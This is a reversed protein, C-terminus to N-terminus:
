NRRLNVNVITHGLLERYLRDIQSELQRITRSVESVSRFVTSQSGEGSDFKYNLVDDFDGEVIFKEFTMDMECEFAEELPIRDFYIREYIAAIKKKIM